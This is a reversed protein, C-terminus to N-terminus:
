RQNTNALGIGSYLNNLEDIGNLSKLEADHFPNDFTLVEDFIAILDNKYTSSYNNFLNNSQKVSNSSLKSSNISMPIYYEQQNSFPCYIDRVSPSCVSSSHSSIPKLPISTDISSVHDITPLLSRHLSSSPNNLFLINTSICSSCKLDELAELLVKNELTFDISKSLIDCIKNTNGYESIDINSVIIIRYKSNFEFPIDHLFSLSTCNNIYTDGKREHEKNVIHCSQSM